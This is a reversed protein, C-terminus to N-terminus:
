YVTSTDCVILPLLLSFATLFHLLTCSRWVDASLHLTNYAACFRVIEFCQLSAILLKSSDCALILATLISLHQVSPVTQRCHSERSTQRDTTQYRDACAVSGKLQQIVEVNTICDASNLLCYNNQRDIHTHTHTNQWVATNARQVAADVAAVVM